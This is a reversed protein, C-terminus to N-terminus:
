WLSHRSCSLIHTDLPAVTVGLTEGTNCLRRAFPSETVLPVTQGISGRGVSACSGGKCRLKLGTERLKRGGHETVCISTARLRERVSPPLVTLLLSRDGVDRSVSVRSVSHRGQCDRTKHVDSVIVDSAICVDSDDITEIVNHENNIYLRQDVDEQISLLELEIDEDGKIKM